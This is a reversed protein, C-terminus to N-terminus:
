PGRARHAAGRPPIPWRTGQHPWTGRGCAVRVAAHQDCPEVPEIPALRPMYRTKAGAAARSAARHSGRARSGPPLREDAGGCGDLNGILAALPLAQWHRQAILYSSLGQFATWRWCQCCCPGKEPTQRMAARYVDQQARSLQITAQYRILQQALGAAIDHPDAPIQRITAYRRLWAVQRQYRAADMASCCSGQLPQGPSYSMLAAPQLSCRNSHQGALM